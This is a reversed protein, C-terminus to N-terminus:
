GCDLVEDILVLELADGFRQDDEMGEVLRTLRERRAVSSAAAYIFNAVRFELHLTPRALSQAAARALDYFRQHLPASLERLLWDSRDSDVMIDRLILRPVEPHALLHAIYAAMIRRLRAAPSSGGEGSEAASLADFLQAAASAVLAKWLGLKGGFHYSILAVDAGADAAILRLPTAEYGKAAFHTRAAELLAAGVERGNDRPRGPNKRDAM